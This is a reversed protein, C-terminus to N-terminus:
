KSSPPSTGTLANQMAERPYRLYPAIHRRLGDRFAVAAITAPTEAFPTTHPGTSQRLGEGPAPLAAQVQEKGTDPPGAARNESAADARTGSVPEPDAASAGGIGPQPSPPAAAM